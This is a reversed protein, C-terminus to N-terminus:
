LTVMVSFQKGQPVGAPVIAQFQRGSAATVMVSHGPGANIPCTVQVVEERGPRAKAWAPVVPAIEVHPRMEVGAEPLEDLEEPDGGCMILWIVSALLLVKAVIFIKVVLAITNAEKITDSLFRSFCRCFVNGPKRQFRKKLSTTFNWRSDFTSTCGNCNDAFQDKTDETRAKCYKTMWSDFGSAKAKNGSCTVTVDKSCTLARWTTPLRRGVTIEEADDEEAANDEEDLNVPLWSGDDEFSCKQQDWKDAFITFSSTVIAKHSGQIADVYQPDDLTVNLKASSVDNLQQLTDTAGLMMTLLVAELVLALLLLLLYSVGTCRDKESAVKCGMCTTCVILLGLVLLGISGHNMQAFEDLEDAGVEKLNEFPDQMMLYASLAILGVGLIMVVLNVLEVYKTCICTAARM